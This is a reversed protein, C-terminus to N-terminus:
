VGLCGCISSRVNDIIRTLVLSSLLNEGFYILAIWTDGDVHWWWRRDFRSQVAKRWLGKFAGSDGTPYHHGFGRVWYGSEVSLALQPPPLLLAVNSRPGLNYKPWSSPDATQHMPDTPTARIFKIHKSPGCGDVCTNNLNGRDIQWVMHM